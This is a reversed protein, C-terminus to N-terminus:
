HTYPAPTTWNFRIPVLATPVGQPQKAPDYFNPDFGWQRTPPNYYPNSLGWTAPNRFQNTAMTSAWLVVISTNLVLVSNSGHNGASWDEQMRMLNHVGGSFTTNNTGTSPVNGTIIAANVVNSASATGITSSTGDNFAGSLITIADCLLAAPVTTNANTTSDPWWAYHIGDATVNYDDLVYLPNPTALTFGLTNNSPLQAGNVLRVVALKNTNYTGKGRRDAVYLIPAYASNKTFKNSIAANTSLWSAYKGVDIQTVFMNTQWERMDTFTNTLSLFTSIGYYGNTYFDCNNTFWAKNTYYSFPIM